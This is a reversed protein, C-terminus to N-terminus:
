FCHLGHFSPTFSIYVSQSALCSQHSALKKALFPVRRDVLHWKVPGLFSEIDLAWGGRVQERLTDAAARMFFM